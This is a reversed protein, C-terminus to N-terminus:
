LTVSAIKDGTVVSVAVDETEESALGSVEKATYAADATYKMKVNKLVMHSGEKKKNGIKELTLKEFHLDFCYINQGSLSLASAKVEYEKKPTFYAYDEETLKMKELMLFTDEDISKKGNLIDEMEPIYAPNLAISGLHIGTGETDSTERISIELIKNNRNLKFEM